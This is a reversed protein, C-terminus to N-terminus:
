CGCGNSDTNTGCDKCIVALKDMASKILIARDIVGDIDLTNYYNQTLRWYNWKRYVINSLQTFEVLNLRYTSSCDCSKGCSCPDRDDCLMQVLLREKCKRLNCDLLMIYEESNVTITYLGDYNLDIELSDAEGLVINEQLVGGITITEFSNADSLKKITYTISNIASKNYLTVINCDTNEIVWSNCVDVPFAETTSTCCNALTVNVTYTGIQDPTFLVNLDALPTALTVIDNYNYTATTVTAGTPDLVQLTLDATVCGTVTDNLNLSSLFIDQEENITLCCDLGSNLAFNPRYEVVAVDTECEVTSAPLSVVHCSSNATGRAIRQTITYNGPECVEVVGNRTTSFPTAENNILYSRAGFPYNTGDIAYINFSCPDQIIFFCCYLAMWEPDNIDTINRVMMIAGVVDETFVSFTNNYTFYGPSEVTVEVNSGNVLTADVENVGNFVQVSNGDDITITIDEGTITVNQNYTETPVTLISIFMETIDVDATFNISSGPTGALNLASGGDFTIGVLSTPANIDAPFNIIYDNGAKLDLLDISDTISIGDLTVLKNGVILNTVNLEAKLNDVIDLHLNM